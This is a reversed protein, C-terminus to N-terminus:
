ILMKFRADYNEKVKGLSLGKNLFKLFNNVRGEKYEEKNNKLKQRHLLRIWNGMFAMKDRISFRKRWLGKNNDKSGPLDIGWCLESEQNFWVNINKRESNIVDDLFTFSDIRGKLLALYMAIGVIGSIWIKIEQDSSPREQACNCNKKHKKTTTLHSESIIILCIVALEETSFFSLNEEQSIASMAVGDVGSNQLMQSLEILSNPQLEIPIGKGLEENLLREARGFEDEIKRNIYFFEWNEVLVKRDFQLCPVLKNRYDKFLVYVESTKTSSLNTNVLQVSSFLHGLMDLINMESKLLYVLYTKLILCGGEELLYILHNKVNQYIGEMMDNNIVEMDLVILDIMMSNQKKIKVFYRWTEVRSLDSPEKWVDYCNVCRMSDNGLEMIATPPSPRTGHLPKDDLILLSNFIGRSVPKIRLLCSTMGGSGDGGCLFDRYTLKSREVITRLKYHAGTAIQNVRLGSILPNSHYPIRKDRVLNKNEESSSTLYWIDLYNAEGSYEIGWVRDEITDEYQSVEHTRSEGYRFKVAHRIESSVFKLNKLCEVMERKVRTKDLEDNSENMISIYLDQCQQLKLKMEKNLGEHILIKYTLHSLGFSCIVENTRMDSFVWSVKRLILEKRRYYLQKLFSRLISGLDSLNMPYSTPIKHPLRKISNYISPHSIFNTFESIFSSRDILFFVTGQLALKPKKLIMYNRRHTLNLSGCIKFGDLIGELFPFGDLKSRISVPFLSKFEYNRKHSLLSDGVLWGITKGIEYSKDEKSLYEWEEDNDKIEVHIKEEGWMNMSKPRWKELIQSVNRPKYEWSSELVPERIERLCKNCKIHYHHIISQLKGREKIISSMQCWVLTSQFMFDYNVEGLGCMTDTTAICWTFCSPSNASFGGSSVRSCGFRHLSSGTRKYGKIQDEWDEGTLAKLNNFISKALMSEPDVFWNISKRLDCARRLVPVKTEKEWPQLISTSEKTNSGLYPYYPGRYHCKQPMGKPMLVTLYNNGLGNERCFKCSDEGGRYCQFMEAPHPVTTGLVEKGWSRKRLSDALHASCEWMSNGGIKSRNVIKILGMISRVEGKIMLQDLEKKYKKKYIGRITKSNTFLNILSKTVGYYTSEAFQSLFRPFLPDITRLWLFLQNEESVLNRAADRIIENKIKSCNEIINKKVEGKIMNSSSLGHRINLSEPKEILKDLDEPKFPSLEPSGAASSLRRISDDNTSEGVIKWFTLSETVGDPFGRIFFRTLSTGAIGGLSPDLYLLLINYLKNSITAEKIFDSIQGRIAPNHYDLLLLGLSGFLLHGNVADHPRESFHGVTLANTSSSNIVTSTSPLQDNSTFNVRSWRKTPLGKITGEIIPVKGYNIYDASTMTEDLNIKLGLKETGQIIASMIQNNNSVMNEIHSELEEENQWSETKYCMSITQNDGQALIKVKTNRIRSEREIMLYNLISWGKQRLGELGGKQGEWCVKVGSKNLCENGRVMMLDPRQNYYILSKQFFEHTRTFLNPLGLFKGMVTFVPGNSEIRQYNNWKEYDINNAITIYDYERTGQGSSVDLMKKIVTNLDDAMTLGEFLPVFYKKILYETSVFYDRLEYSMLSFFRGEEKLEREKAKLGIVLKEWDLGHDNIAKLFEPWNTAPKELLTQLVRKTPIRKHKQEKIIKLVESRDLSHSKDSYIQSIDIMDPIEYCQTLPLEHWHDGFEDIIQQTPWTNHSIHNYLKQNKDLKTKDVSWCKKELFNKRLIKFALDSALLNAYSIDVQCDKNVQSELKDLGVLYDIWPHGFHRFSSYFALVMDVSEEKLIVNSFRSLDIGRELRLENISSYIHNEFNPFEPIRPRSKRVIKILRLNCISELLKIGKYSKNGHNELLLDGEKYLAMMTEINEETYKYEDTCVTMSLITQFRSILVDKMMLIFERNLIIRENEWYAYNDFIVWRGSIDFEIIWCKHGKDELNGPLKIKRLQNKKQLNTLEIGSRANMVCIIRHLEFFKLFWSKGLPPVDNWNRRIDGIILTEDLGLGRYFSAGVERIGEILRSLTEGLNWYDNTVITQNLYRSFVKHADEPERLHIPNIFNKAVRKIIDFEEYEYSVFSNNLEHSLGRVDVVWNKLELLPDIILPSNLNYDKNNILDMSEEEENDWLNDLIESEVENEEWYTNLSDDTDIVDFSDM